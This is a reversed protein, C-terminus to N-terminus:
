ASGRLPNPKFSNNPRMQGYSRAQPLGAKAVFGVPETAGVSVVTRKRPFLELHSFLWAASVALAGAFRARRTRDFVPHL